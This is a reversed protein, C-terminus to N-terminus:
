GFRKEIKFLNCVCVWIYIYVHMYQLVAWMHLIKLFSCFIVKTKVLKPKFTWFSNTKDQGYLNLFTFHPSFGVNQPQVLRESPVLFKIGLLFFSLNWFMSLKPWVFGQHRLGFVQGWQDGCKTKCRMSGHHM